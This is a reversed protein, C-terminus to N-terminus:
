RKNWESEKIYRKQSRNMAFAYNKQQAEAETLNIPKSIRAYPPRLSTDILVYKNMSSKDYIFNM